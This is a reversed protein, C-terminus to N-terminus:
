LSDPNLYIGKGDKPSGGFYITYGPEKIYKAKFRQFVVDPQQKDNVKLFHENLRFSRVGGDATIKERIIEHIINWIVARNKGDVTTTDNKPIYNKLLDPWKNPNKLIANVLGPYKNLDFSGKKEKRWSTDGPTVLLKEGGYLKISKNNRTIGVVGTEVIIETKNDISKLNFSTGLVNVLIDNIKVRFPRNVDHVINFFAEGKLTVDRKNIYQGTAYALSSNKSLAILSGDALTDTKPQNTTVLTTDAKSFNDAVIGSFDHQAPERLYFLLSVSFFILTGAAISLWLKIPRRKTFPQEASDIKEKFRTWALDAGSPNRLKLAKSEEFILQYGTFIERNQESEGLWLEVQLREEDTAEAALYRILLDENVIHKGQKKM